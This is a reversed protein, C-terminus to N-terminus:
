SDTRLRLHAARLRSASIRLSLESPDPGLTLLSPHILRVAYKFNWADNKKRLQTAMYVHSAQARRDALCRFADRAQKRQLSKFDLHEFM